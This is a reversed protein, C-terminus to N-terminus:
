CSIIPSLRDYYDALYWSNKFLLKQLFSSFTLKDVVKWYIPVNESMPEYVNNKRIKIYMQQM